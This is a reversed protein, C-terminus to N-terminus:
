LLRDFCGAEGELWLWEGCALLLCRVGFRQLLCEDGIKVHRMYTHLGM